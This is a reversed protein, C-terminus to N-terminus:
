ASCLIHEPVEGISSVVRLTADPSVVGYQAQEFAWSFTNVHVASFGLELPPNIDSKISDGVAWSLQREQNGIRLSRIVRQRWERTDKHSMIVVPYDNARFGAQALKKRQHEADGKTVIAIRYHQRLAELAELAGPFAVAVYDFVSFGVRELARAIEQDSKINYRQCMKKYALRFTLPHRWLKSFGIERCKEFDIERQATRSEEVSFGIKAMEEGFLAKTHEYVVSTGVVQGNLVAGILTDDADCLVWPKYTQQM